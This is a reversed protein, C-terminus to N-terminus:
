NHDELVREREIRRVVGVITRGRVAAKRVMKEWVVRVAPALALDLANWCNPRLVYALSAPVCAFGALSIGHYIADERGEIPGTLGKFM